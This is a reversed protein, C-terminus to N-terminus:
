GEKKVQEARYMEFSCSSLITNINKVLDDFEPRPLAWLKQCHIHTDICGSSAGTLAYGVEVIPNIRRREALPRHEELWADIQEAANASWVCLGPSDAQVLNNKIIFNILKHGWWDPITNTGNCHLM